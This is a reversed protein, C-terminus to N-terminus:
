DLGEVGERLKRVKEIQHLLELRADKVYNVLNFIETGKVVYNRIGANAYKVVVDFDTTGSVVIIKCFHHRIREIIDIGTKTRLDHDIIFVYASRDNISSLFVQWDTYARVEGIGEHQLLEKIAIAYEKNDDLLYTLVTIM